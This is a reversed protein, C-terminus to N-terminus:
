PSSKWAGSAINGFTGGVTDHSQTFEGVAVEPKGGDDTFNVAWRGSIDANDTAATEFFRFQQGRQAHLPIHQQKGGLKVLSVKGQLEDGKADAILRNEYGPMRIELHAGTVTVEDLKVREKGNVLYGVSTTGAPELDLAFPLEGGPLTLVARYTGMRVATASESQPTGRHCASLGLTGLYLAALAFASMRTSTKMLM